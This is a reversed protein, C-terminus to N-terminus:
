RFFARIEELLRHPDKEVVPPQKCDPPGERLAAHAAHDAYTIAPHTRTTWRTDLSRVEQTPLTRLLIPYLGSTGPALRHLSRAVYRTTAQYDNHIVPRDTGAMRACAHALLAATAEGEVNNACRMRVVLVPPRLDWPNPSALPYFAAASTQAAGAFSFDSIWRGPEPEATLFTQETGAVASRRIQRIRQNAWGELEHGEHPVAWDPPADPVRLEVSRFRAAMPHMARSEPPLLRLLDGDGLLDVTDQPAEITVQGDDQVHLLGALVAVAGCVADVHGPAARWYVSTTAPRRGAHRWAGNAVVYHHTRFAAWARSGRVQGRVRIVHRVIRGDSQIRYAGAEMLRRVVSAESVPPNGKGNLSEAIAMAPLGAERLRIAAALDFPESLRTPRDEEAFTPGDAPTPSPLPFMVNM